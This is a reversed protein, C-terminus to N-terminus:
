GSWSGMLQVKEPTVHDELMMDTMLLRGGPRLVRLVERLVRPKDLCLNFVGNSIVTDVTGSAVPVSEADGHRFEVNTLNAGDANRRAKELMEQTADVGIVMGAPGVRHAALLSDMGAGCGLDLVTEGSHIEGLSLPNGVGAFSETASDPLADIEAGPYGLLKASEPGAAFDRELSPSQALKAYREQISARLEEPTKDVPRKRELYPVCNRYQDTEAEEDSWLYYQGLQSQFMGDPFEVEISSETAPSLETRASAM